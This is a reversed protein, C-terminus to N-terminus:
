EVIATLYVVIGLAVLLGGALIFVLFSTPNAWFLSVVEVTLGIILLAAALKLRSGIREKFASM